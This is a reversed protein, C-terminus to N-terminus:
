KLYNTNCLYRQFENRSFFFNMTPTKTETVMKIINEAMQISFEHNFRLKQKFSISFNKIVQWNIQVHEPFNLYQTREHCHIINLKM